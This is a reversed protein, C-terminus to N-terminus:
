LLLKSPQCKFISLAKSKRILKSYIPFKLELISQYPIIVTNEKTIYPSNIIIENNKFCVYNEICSDNTVIM